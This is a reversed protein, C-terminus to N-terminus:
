ARSYGSNGYIVSNIAPIDWITIIQMPFGKRSGGETVLIAELKKGANSAEVFADVVEFLTTNRNVFKVDENEESFELVTEVTSEDLYAREEEGVSAMWRALANTTLIGKYEKNYYVPIQSFSKERIIALASRVSQEPDIVTVGENKNLSTIKPPNRLERAIFEIDEVVSEHPEAITSGDPSRTHVIANRLEAYDSLRHKFTSLVRDNNAVKTVVSSFELRGTSNTARRLYEEISVFAALFRTSNDKKDM